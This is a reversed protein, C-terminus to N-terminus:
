GRPGGRGARVFYRYSVWDDGCSRDNEVHLLTGANAEILQVVTDLPVGYMPFEGPDEVASNSEVAAHYEVPAVAAPLSADAPTTAPNAAAGARDEVHVLLRAVPSGRDKFWLVGEHVVDVECVYDGREAPAHVVLPLRCTQGARLIEPLRTRGDDRTLMRVGSADLWHDGVSFVGHKRQIWDFVSANTLEVQLTVEEDPAVARPPASVVISAVYAADSLPTTIAESPRSTTRRRHSPLQFVAIGGPALVRFFERLYSCAIEPVIHQLVINSVIFDFSHNAFVRLDATQNCVYSVVSPHQNFRTALEHMRPSVDVGVVREFQTAMAQTLRGVGCGFDLAAGRRVEFGQAELEYLISAIEGSGTQFYRSVDWKGERKTADSLIAWLPDRQAQRDWYDQNLRLESM